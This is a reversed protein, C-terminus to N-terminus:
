PHASGRSQGNGNSTVLSNILRVVARQDREPLVKFHDADEIEINKVTESIDCSDLNNRIGDQVCKAFRDWANGAAHRVANGGEKPIAFPDSM